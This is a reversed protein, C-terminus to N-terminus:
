TNVKALDTPNVSGQILPNANWATKTDNFGIRQAIEYIRDYACFEKYSTYVSHLRDQWGKIGSECIVKKM